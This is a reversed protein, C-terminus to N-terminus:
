RERNIAAPPKYALLISWRKSGQISIISYWIDSDNNRKRYSRRRRCSPVKIYQWDPFEPGHGDNQRVHSCDRSKKKVYLKRLDSELYFHQDLFSRQRSRGSIPRVGQLIIVFIARVVMLFKELDSQRGDFGHRHLLERVTALLARKGAQWRGHHSCAVEMWRSIMNWCRPKSESSVATNIFNGVTTQALRYYRCITRPYSLPASFEGADWKCFVLNWPEWM